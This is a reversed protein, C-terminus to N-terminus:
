TDQDLPTQIKLLFGKSDMSKLPKQSVFDYNIKRSVPKNLIKM